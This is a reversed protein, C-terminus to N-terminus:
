AKELLAPRIYKTYCKENIIVKEDYSNHYIVTQLITKLLQLYM